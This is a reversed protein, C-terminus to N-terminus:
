RRSVNAALENPLVDLVAIIPDAAYGGDPRVRRSNSSHESLPHPIRTIQIPDLGLVLNTGLEARISDVDSPVLVV